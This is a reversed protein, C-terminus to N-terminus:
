LPGDSASEIAALLACPGGRIRGMSSFVIFVMQKEIIEFAIWPPRLAGSLCGPTRLAVELAGMIAPDSVILSLKPQFKAHRAVGYLAHCNRVVFDFRCGSYNLYRREGVVNMECNCEDFKTVEGRRVIELRQVHNQNGSM